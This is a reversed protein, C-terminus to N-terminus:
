KMSKVLVYNVGGQPTAVQLLVGNTLDAKRLAQQAAAPTTVEQGDIKSILTGRRLDSLAALGAEQMKTIVVGQM